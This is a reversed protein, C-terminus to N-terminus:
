ITLMIMPDIRKHSNSTGNVKEACYDIFNNNWFYYGTYKENFYKYKM